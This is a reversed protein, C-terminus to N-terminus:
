PIESAWNLDKELDTQWQYGLVTCRVLSPFRKFFDM